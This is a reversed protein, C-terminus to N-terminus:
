VLNLHGLIMGFNFTLASGLDVIVRLALIKHFFM